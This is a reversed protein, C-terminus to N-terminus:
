ALQNQSLILALKTRNSLQTIRLIQSVYLKVTNESIGMECSIQYNTLGQSILKAVELQRPSLQEFHEPLSGTANDKDIGVGQASSAPIESPNIEQYIDQLSRSLHMLRDDLRELRLREYTDLLRERLREVGQLLSVPDIPKQYYDAIGAKLAMVVDDKEAQGTFLISELPRNSEKAVQRLAHILEIGDKGPMKLDTLVLAISPDQQFCALAEDASASLVCEYGEQVLLELLEELILPENDVILVKFGAAKNM